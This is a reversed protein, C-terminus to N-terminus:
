RKDIEPVLESRDALFIGDPCINRWENDAHEPASGVGNGTQATALVSDYPDLTLSGIALPLEAIAAMNRPALAIVVFTALCSFCVFLADM